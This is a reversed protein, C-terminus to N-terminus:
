PTAKFSNIATQENVFPASMLEANVADNYYDIGDWQSYEIDKWDKVIERYEGFGENM